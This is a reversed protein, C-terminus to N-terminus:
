LEPRLLRSENGFLSRHNVVPHLDIITESQYVSVKPFYLLEVPHNQSTVPVNYPQILHLNLKDSSHKKEFIERLDAVWVM